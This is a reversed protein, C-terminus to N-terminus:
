RKGKPQHVLGCVKCKVGVPVDMPCGASRATTERAGMAAPSSEAEVRGPGRGGRADRAASAELAREDRLHAERRPIPTNNFSGRLRWVIEANVSRESVTAEEQIAEYLADEIRLDHRVIGM